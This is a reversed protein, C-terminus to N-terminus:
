CGIQSSCRPGLADWTNLRIHNVPGLGPRGRFVRGASLSEIMQRNSRAADEHVPDSVVIQAVYLNKEMAVNQVRVDGSFLTYKDLFRNVIDIARAVVRNAQESNDLIAQTEEVILCVDVQCFFKAENFGGNTGTLVNLSALERGDHLVGTILYRQPEYQPFQDRVRGSLENTM